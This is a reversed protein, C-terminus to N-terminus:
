YMKTDNRDTYNKNQSQLKINNYFNLRNNEMIIFWNFKLKHLDHMHATKILYYLYNLM